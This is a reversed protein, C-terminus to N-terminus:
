WRVWFFDPQFNALQAHRKAYKDLIEFFEDEQHIMQIVADFVRIVMEASFDCESKTCSVM